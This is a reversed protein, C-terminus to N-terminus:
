RRELVKRIAALQSMACMGDEWWACQEGMCQRRRPDDGSDLHEPWGETAALAGAQLIPCIKAAM